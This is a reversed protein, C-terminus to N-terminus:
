SGGHSKWWMKIGELILVISLGGLAGNRAGKIETTRVRKDINGLRKGQRVQEDQIGELKGNIMGLMYMVDDKNNNEGTM